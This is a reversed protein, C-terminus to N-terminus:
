YKTAYGETILKENLSIWSDKEKKWFVGLYRGYKEREDKITQLIIEGESLWIKLAERSKIGERREEGRLEPADIGYLRIPIGKGDDGKLIVGFGLDISVRVTDGDYISLVECRYVYKQPEEM